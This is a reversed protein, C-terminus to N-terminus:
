RWVQWWRKGDKPKSPFAIEASAAEYFARATRKMLPRLGNLGDGLSTAELATFRFTGASGALKFTFEYGGELPAGQMVWGEGKLELSDETEFTIRQTM